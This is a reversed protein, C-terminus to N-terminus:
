FVTGIKSDKVKKKINMVKIDRVMWALKGQETHNSQALGRTGKQRLWM